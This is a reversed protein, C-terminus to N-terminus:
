PFAPPQIITFKNRWVAESFASPNCESGSCTVADEGLRLFKQPPQVLRASKKPDQLKISM